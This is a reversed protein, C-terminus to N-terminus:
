MSTTADVTDSSLKSRARDDRERKKKLSHPYKGTTEVYFKELDEVNVIGGTAAEIRRIKTAMPFTRGHAWNWVSPPTSHLIRALTHYSMQFNIRYEELHM